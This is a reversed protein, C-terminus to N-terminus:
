LALIAFRFGDLVTIMMRFETNRCNQFVQAPVSTDLQIIKKQRQLIDVGCMRLAVSATFLELFCSPQAKKEIESM